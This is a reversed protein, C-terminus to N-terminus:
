AFYGMAISLATDSGDLQLGYTFTRKVKSQDDSDTFSRAKALPATIHVSKGSVLAGAVTNLKIDIAEVTQNNLKTMADAYNASDVFFSLEIVMDYDSIEHSKDGTAYINTIEPNTTITFQDCAITSGGATIVDITTLGVVSESSLTTAAPTENVPIGANDLYGQVNASLTAIQGAQGTITLDSVLADTSTFKKGDLYFIGSGKVPTQSNTYIVTEQGPTGTDITEDFGCIKLLPAFEPPTALADAAINSTRIQHTISQSIMNKNTDVYSDTNGLKASVRKFTITDVTPNIIAPETTEIFGTPPTPLTAGANLYFSSKRTNLYAM